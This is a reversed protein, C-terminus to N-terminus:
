PILRGRALAFSVCSHQLFWNLNKNNTKSYALFSYFFVSVFAHICVQFRSKSVISARTDRHTNMIDSLWRRNWILIFRNQSFSCKTKDGYCWCKIIKNHWSKKNHQIWKQWVISHVQRKYHGKLMRMSSSTGCRVISISENQKYKKKWNKFLLSCKWQLLSRDNFKFRYLEM